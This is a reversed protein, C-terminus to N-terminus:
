ALLTEMIREGFKEVRTVDKTDPIGQVVHGILELDWSGVFVPDSDPTQKMSGQLDWQNDPENLYVQISYTHGFRNKKEVAMYPIKTNLDM